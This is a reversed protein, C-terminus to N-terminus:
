NNDHFACVRSSLSITVQKIIITHSSNREGRGEGGGGGGTAVTQHHYHSMLFYTAVLCHVVCTCLISFPSDRDM